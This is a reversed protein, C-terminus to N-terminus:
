YIGIAGRYIVYIWGLWSHLIAWWINHVLGWSIVTAIAIGMGTFYGIGSSVASSKESM